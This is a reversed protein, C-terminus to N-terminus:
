RRLSRYCCSASFRPFVGARGPRHCCQAPRPVRPPPTFAGPPAHDTQDSAPQHGSCGEGGAIGPMPLCDVAPHDPGPCAAAPSRLWEIFLVHGVDLIVLGIFLGVLWDAIVGGIVGTLIVPMPVDLGCGLLLPNLVYDSLCAFLMNPAFIILPVPEQTIYTYGVVLVILPLAPVQVIAMMLTALALLGAFRIGFTYPGIGVLPAQM